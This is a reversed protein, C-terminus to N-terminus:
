RSWVQIHTVVDVPIVVNVSAVANSAGAAPAPIVAEFRASSGQEPIVAVTVPVEGAFDTAQVEVVQNTSSGVPLQVLVPAPAGFPITQGAAQIVDLRSPRDPFVTMQADRTAKGTM